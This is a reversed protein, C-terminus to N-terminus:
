SPRLRSKAKRSVGRRRGRERAGRDARGRAAPRACRERDALRLSFMAPDEDGCVKVTLRHWGERLTLSVGFRDADLDRYKADKLVEVGDFFVKFAGAGSVWASFPRAKNRKDHIFTTAYGCIKEQPRLLAGLDVWAYPFVDPSLRNTVPREKGEYTRAMVLPEGIEDEPGFSRDFGGKGENDFPGAVIWRSVFGLERIQKKAGALDGRRRHAYAELLGAYAKLPAGAQNDNAISHLAQEVETPDNQDWEAWLQRLPVYGYPMGGRIAEDSLRTVKPLRQGVDASAVRSVLSLGPAIMAILALFVIRLSM